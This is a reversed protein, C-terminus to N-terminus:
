LEVENSQPHAAFTCAHNALGVNVAMASYCPLPRSMHGRFGLDNTVTPSLRSPLALGTLFFTSFSGAAERQNTIPQHCPAVRAPIGYCGAIASTLSSRCIVWIKPRHTTESIQQYPHPGLNLDQYAWVNVCTLTQDERTPLWIRQKQGDNTLSFPATAGPVGRVHAFEPPVLRVAPETDPEHTSPRKLPPDQGPRWGLRVQPPAPRRGSAGTSSGRRPPPVRRRGSCAGAPVWREWLLGRLRRGHRRGGQGLVSGRFSRVAWRVRLRWAATCSSGCAARKAAVM